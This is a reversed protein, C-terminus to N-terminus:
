EALWWTCQRWQRVYVWLIPDCARVDAREWAMGSSIYGLRLQLWRHMSVLVVCGGKKEWAGDISLQCFMVNAPTVVSGTLAAAPVDIFKDKWWIWNKQGLVTHPWHNVYVFEHLIYFGFNFSHKGFDNKCLKGRPKLMNTNTDSGARTTRTSAKPQQYKLYSMLVCLPMNVLLADASDSIIKDRVYIM